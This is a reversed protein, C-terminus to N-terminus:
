VLFYFLLLFQESQKFLAKNIRQKRKSTILPTFPIYLFFFFVTWIVLRTHAASM